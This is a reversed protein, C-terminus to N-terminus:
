STAGHKYRCGPRIRLVESDIDAPDLGPMDVPLGNNAKVGVLLDGGAANALASISGLFQLRKKDDRKDFVETKYEIYLSEGVQNDILGQVAAATIDELPKYLLSM